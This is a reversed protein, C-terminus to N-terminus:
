GSSTASSSPATRVRRIFSIWALAGLAVGIVLLGYAVFPHRRFFPQVHALALHFFAGKAETAISREFRHPEVELERGTWRLVLFSVPDADTDRSRDGAPPAVRFRTPGRVEDHPQHHHGTLVMAVNASQILDLLARYREEVAPGRKGEWDIIERHLCLVVRESRAGAEELKRRLDGLEADELPGDANNLGIFRVSGIRFDFTLSRFWRLFEPVGKEREIDHNGPVLFLKAPPPWRKMFWVPVRMHDEDPNSSLDGLVIVAKPRHLAARRFIEPLYAFGGQIDALIVVSWSEAESVIERVAGNAAEALPTELERTDIALALVCLLAAVIWSTGLAIASWPLVRKWNM